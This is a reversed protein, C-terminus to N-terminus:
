LPGRPTMRVANNKLPPRVHLNRDMSVPARERDFSRRIKPENGHSPYRDLLKEISWHHPTGSQHGAIVDSSFPTKCPRRHDLPLGNAEDVSVLEDQCSGDPEVLRHEGRKKSLQQPGAGGCDADAQM